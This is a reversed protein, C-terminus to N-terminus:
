QVNQAENNNNSVSLILTLMKKAVEEAHSPGTLTVFAKLNEKNIEEEIIESTRKFTIPEVGKAVNIFVKPEDLILNIDNAIGRVAKSPVALLIYDAFDVVEKLNTSATIKPDLKVSPLYTENTHRNNIESVKKSDKGYIKIEHKNDNLLIALSTGFSGTGLISIKAM